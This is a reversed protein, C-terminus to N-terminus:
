TKIYKHFCKFMRRLLQEVILSNKKIKIMFKEYNRRHDRRRKDNFHERNFIQEVKKLSQAYRLTKIM